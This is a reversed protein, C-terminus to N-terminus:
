KMMSVMDIENQPHAAMMRELAALGNCALEVHYGKTKLSRETGHLITLSDDVLLIRVGTGDVTIEGFDDNSNDAESLVSMADQRPGEM